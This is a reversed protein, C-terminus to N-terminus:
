KIKWRSTKTFLVKGMIEMHKDLKSLSTDLIKAIERLELILRDLKEGDIYDEYSDLEDAVRKIRDIVM